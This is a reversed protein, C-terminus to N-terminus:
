ETILRHEETFTRDLGAFTKDIKALLKSYNGGDSSSTGTHIIERFTDRVADVDVNMLTGFPEAYKQVAHKTFDEYGFWRYDIDCPRGFCEGSAKMKEVQSLETKLVCLETHLIQVEENCTSFNRNVCASKATSLMDRSSTIIRIRCCPCALESLFRICELTHLRKGPAYPRGTPISAIHGVLYTTNESRLPNTYIEEIADWGKIEIVNNANKAISKYVDNFMHHGTGELSALFVFTSPTSETCANSSAISAFLLLLILVFM